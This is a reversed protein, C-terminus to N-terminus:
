EVYDKMVYGAGSKSYNVPIWNGIVDGTVTLEDGMELVTVVASDTSAGARLNLKPCVVRVTKISETPEVPEENIEESAEILPEQIPEEIEETQEVPLIEKQVDVQITKNSKRKNSSM